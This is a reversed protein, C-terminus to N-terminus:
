PEFEAENEAAPARWQTAPLFLYISLLTGIPFALILVSFLFESIRRAQESRRVCAPALAAHILGFVLLGALITITQINEEPFLHKSDPFLERSFLIVILGSVSLVIYTAAVGVHCKALLRPNDAVPEASPSSPM